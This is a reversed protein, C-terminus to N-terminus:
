SVLKVSFKRGKIRGSQLREIAASAIDAAIAVYAFRDHIEIKGIEAGALGGAEGTLAGLIDGPRLKDKRGGGIMLTVMAADGKPRPAAPSAMPEPGGRNLSDVSKRQISNGTLTEIAAVKNVERPTAFSVAVGSKGARGSRGIRHVYIEPKSPLDLNVVLDLDEVDLGRAAVDTAVLIRVSRNRFKAMMQDREFQELDGHLSGTSIGRNKLAAAVDAVGAKFNCFVIASQPKQDKLLRLLVDLKDAQAVEYVLQRISPTSKETSEISIRVPERQHGTSMAMISQPFTASFLVTQRNEPTAKLIKQMDEEFGMDLMRDAEDLVVTAVKQLDLRNRSVCDLVRGPTGVVIHVGKELADLQPGIPSGGALILVQLGPHKRGLKRVERAVQACLERTPSLILAQLRRGPLRIKALIPLAFAATKGSGTHSQGVVDRGKLLPPISQAQIPTPQDYGLERVVELLMPPLGLAGFAKDSM